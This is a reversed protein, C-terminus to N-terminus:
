SWKFIYKYFNLLHKGQESDHEVEAEANENEGKQEEVEEKEEDSRLLEPEVEKEIMEKSTEDIKGTEDIKDHVEVKDSREIEVKEEFNLNKKVREVESDGNTDLEIENL